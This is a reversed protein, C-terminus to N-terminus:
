LVAYYRARRLRVAALSVGTTMGKYDTPRSGAGISVKSWAIRLPDAIIRTRM